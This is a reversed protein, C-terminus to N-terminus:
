LLEASTVHNAPTMELPWEERMSVFIFERHVACPFDRFQVM